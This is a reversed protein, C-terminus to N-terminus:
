RCKRGRKAELNKRIDFLREESERLFQALKEEFTM